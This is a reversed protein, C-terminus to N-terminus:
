KNLCTTIDKYIQCGRKKANLGHVIKGITKLTIKEVTDFEDIRKAFELFYYPDDFCDDPLYVRQNNGVRPSVIRKDEIRIGLHKILDVPRLSELSHKDSYIIETYKRAKRTFKRIHGATRFHPCYNPERSLFQMLDFIFTLTEVECHQALLGSSVSVLLIVVDQVTSTTYPKILGRHINKYVVHSKGFDLLVVKYPGQSRWVGQKTFYNRPKSCPTLMINWPFIDNHCFDFEELGIELIGCIQVLIDLLVAVNLDPKKLYDALSIGEVFKWYSVREKIDFYVLESYQDSYKMQPIICAGIFIEHIFEELKSNKVIKRVVGLSESHQVLTTKSEWIIEWDTPGILQKKKKSSIKACKSKAVLKMEMRSSVDRASIVNYMYVGTKSESDILVKQWYDLVGNQSLYTDYFTKANEAIKKCKEPNAWCWDMVESLNSLDSKVHLYHTGELLFKHFWLTYPSKVLLVVVNMGLEMSLRFACSHGPIHLIYKYGSQEMSDLPEKLGISNQIDESITHLGFGERHTPGARQSVVPHARPRLNWSTIGVDLRDDQISCVKLRPNTDITVGEGTSSGRFVVKNIKSDWVQEPIKGYDKQLRNLYSTNFKIGHDQFAIRAWDDWTPVGSDIFNERACMSFIPLIGKTDDFVKENGPVLPTYPHRFDKRLLPFDRRNLFFEADPVKRKECLTELMHKLCSVNSDGEIQPFENRILFNNGIWQHKNRNIRNRNFRRNMRTQSSEYIGLIEQETMTIKEGWSNTFNSKSFPLFVELKNNRIKVFIAKKLCHFYYKFNSLVTRSSIRSEPLSEALDISEWSQKWLNDDLAINSGVGSEHILHQLFQEEDGATYNVQKFNKYRPNTQERSSIGDQDLKFYEKVKLYKSTTTM